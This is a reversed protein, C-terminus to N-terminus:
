LIDIKQGSYINQSKLSIIEGDSLGTVVATDGDLSIIEVPKEVIINDQVAFVSNNNTIIRRPIETGAVNSSSYIDGSLYMGEWLESGKCTIYVNVMLTQPDVSDNIRTVTGIIDGNISKSKLVAKDGTKILYSQNVTVSTELDYTYSSMYEGLLQGARVLTGPKIQSSVVTGSFPAKIQYKSFTYELNKVNYYTQYIGKGSIYYKERENKAEPLPQIVKEVDFDVLYQEWQPASEPFDYQMDPLIQAIQTLLGSRQSMLKYETEQSNISLLTEGKKYSVGELFEKKGTELVGQVESFVQVHNQAVLKGIVPIKIQVDEVAIKMVPVSQMPHVRNTRHPPKKMGSLWTIILFALVLVAVIPYFKKSLQKIKM